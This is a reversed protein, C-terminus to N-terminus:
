LKGNAELSGDGNVEIPDEDPIEKDSWGYGEAGEVPEVFEFLCSDREVTEPDFKFVRVEANKWMYGSPGEADRTIQRLFDGHAVLVIHQEPQDRIFQRVSQARKAIADRDAAYFGQKSTWDHTLKDFNFGAFESIKELEERSVGTDCPFDNCEQAAPHCIANKIGLRKVAPGWGLLTTQLTRKLPSTVILEVKDQLQPIKPALAAAQKRGLKTLPADLVTHCNAFSCMSPKPISVTMNSISMTNPRRMARLTSPATQHWPQTPKIHAQYSPM